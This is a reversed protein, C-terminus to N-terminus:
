AEEHNTTSIRGFEVLDRIATEFEQGLDPKSLQIVENLGSASRLHIESYQVIPLKRNDKFRRDPGGKKNVYQWTSDVIRTDKPVEEEEIFRTNTYNIVLNEYGVAGVHKDEFILLRDPFFNITQKGVPISVLEINTKLFKPPKGTSITIPKRKVLHSAGASRKREHMTDVSKAAPIHWAKRSNGWVKLANFVDQFKQIADDELDYFIVITKRLNDRWYTFGSGALGLLLLGAAIMPHINAGILIVPILLSAFLVVPWWTFLKRKTEIEQLLAESSSDRLEFISGSEIEILGSEVPQISPKPGTQVAQGSGASQPLAGRYYLGGRGMHVYNGRPGNGIRLGPVGVSVGVGSKSFNYRLPGVKISKRLYFSM